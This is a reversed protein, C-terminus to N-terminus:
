IGAEVGLVGLMWRVVTPKGFVINHRTEALPGGTEVEIRVFDGGVERMLVETAAVDWIHVNFDIMAGVAGEVALSHGFCDCYTRVGDHARMLKDFLYIRGAKAFQRREGCAIIEDDIADPSVDVLRPLTNGNCVAGLGDAAVYTRDLGPLDIVGVIPRGCHTLALLVGFLPVGHRLSRTGDIPDIIWLYDSNGEGGAGEEGLIDHTPFAATLRTRIFDEVALDIDTVFSGDAKRRSDLDGALGTTVIDRAARVIQEASSRFTRLDDSTPAM